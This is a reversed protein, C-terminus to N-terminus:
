FGVQKEHTRIGNRMDAPKMSTCELQYKSPSTGTLRRFQKSFYGPNAYGVRQAVTQVSIDPNQLLQKAKYIRIDNLLSGFNTHCHRNFLQCLYSKNMYFHNSMGSLNLEM